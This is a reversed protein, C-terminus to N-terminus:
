LTHPSCGIVKPIRSRVTVLVRLREGANGCRCRNASIRGDAGTGCCECIDPRFLVRALRDEICKLAFLRETRGTAPYLDPEEAAPFKGIASQLAIIPHACAVTLSGPFLVRAGSGPRTIFVPDVAPAAPDLLQPEPRASSHTSTLRRFV